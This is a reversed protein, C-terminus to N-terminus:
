GREDPTSTSSSTKTPSLVNTNHAAAILATAGDCALVWTFLGHRPVRARGEADRDGEIRWELHALAFQESLARVTLALNTWRSGRM